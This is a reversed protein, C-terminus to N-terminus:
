GLIRELAEPLTPLSFTFGAEGLRTPVARQSYLLLEEAMQAGLLLKLAPVPAPILAPRHLAQGLAKALEANRVPNPATLNVPGAPAGDGLLHVLAAIEDALAIWSMWQKGSGVRGGAGTKFPLMMKPLVGGDKDLVIGTRIHTVRIGAAAAPATCAEWAQVVEALFGGGGPSAEDVVEDGRNGYFGVASGSLLVKPPNALEALTEALLTTGKTRSGKVKAKQAATWRKAGVGEGALHIVAGIGELGAADITGAEIDWRISDAGSGQGGAQSGASRVVPVVRHGAAELAPRLATGIFGTSGTVAVEM